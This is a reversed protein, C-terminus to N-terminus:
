GTSFSQCFRWLSTTGSKWQFNMTKIFKVSGYNLIYNCSFVMWSSAGWKKKFFSSINAQKAPGQKTNVEEAKAAIEAQKTQSEEEEVPVEIIKEIDRTVLIANSLDVITLSIYTGTYGNEDTYQETVKVKKKITRKGSSTSNSATKSSEPDNKVSFFSNLKQNTDTKQKKSKRQPKNDDKNEKDENDEKDAEDDDDRKRKKGRSKPAAEESTTAAKKSKKTTKEPKEEVEMDDADQDKKDKKTSKKPSKEEQVPSKKSKTAKTEEVEVAAKKSKKSAPKEADEEAQKQAKAASKKIGKKPSPSAKDEKVPSSPKKSKKKEAIEHASLEEAWSVVM